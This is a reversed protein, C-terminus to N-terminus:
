RAKAAALTAAFALYPNIDAGGLRIEVRTEGPTPAVLRLAATKNDLGWSNTRPVFAPGSFRKWSNLNPSFVLFFDPLFRQLGGLFHHLTQNPEARARDYGFAPSQEGAHMLSVNLHGGATEHAESLRAMFSVLADQERAVAKAVTKFRLWHDAAKSPEDPEFSFELLGHFEAHLAHLPLRMAEACRQLRGLLPAAILHDVHSYMRMFDPHSQLSAPRKSKLSAPTEALVHCEVEGACHAVFGAEQLRSTERRLLARPCWASHEGSLQGLLLLGLSGDPSLDICPSGTDFVLRADAYGRAPDQFIGNDMPTDAADTAFIATSVALGDRCLGELADRHILKSRLRGEWDVCGAAFFTGTGLLTEAAEPALPAATSLGAPAMM